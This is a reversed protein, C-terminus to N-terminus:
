GDRIVTLAADTLGSISPDLVHWGQMQNRIWTLQRKAYRRTQMKAQAIASALSMRGDLCAGLEAVGVAKAGPADAPLGLESVARVEDLAGSDMMADFRADCRAYLWDRPPVLALADCSALPLLPPPTRDQWTALGTGTARLVELARIVRRPNSLDIQAATTPDSRTLEVVRAALGDRALDAEVAARIDAPVDPIPALGQTLARFYLGTGGVIVAPPGELLPELDRLWHGVSYAQDLAVHGYLRHPVRTLDAEEPRASLIQWGDYIQQSDANIVVGGLAQALDMALASKGSATPGAILVPRTM